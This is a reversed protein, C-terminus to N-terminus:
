AWTLGEPLEDVPCLGVAPVTLHTAFGGDRDNGAEEMAIARSPRWFAALGPMRPLRAKMSLRYYPIRDTPRLMGWLASAILVRDAAERSARAGLSGFDLRDYLVGAYVEAAPASPASAVAANRDIDGAQGKSIALAEVAKARPRDALKELEGILRARNERLSGPFALSDLDVPGGETPATKGESPPLLINM